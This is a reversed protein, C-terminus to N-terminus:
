VSIKVLFRDVPSTVRTDVALLPDCLRVRVRGDDEGVDRAERWPRLPGVGRADDGQEVVQEAPEISRCGLDADLLDLRNAIGVHSHGTRGLRSRVV